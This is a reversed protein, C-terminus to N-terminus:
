TRHRRERVHPPSGSARKVSLPGFQDKGCMRPHDWLLRLRMSRILTKGACAPTIGYNQRGPFTCVPRERVHPPSGELGVQCIHEVPDKGCMRPHDWAVVAPKRRIPTKGACAPTIRAASSAAFAAALRERVHPPSGLQMLRMAFSAPDKGCMRPHDQSERSVKEGLTTKGACAPTIRHCAAVVTMLFPALMYIPCTM